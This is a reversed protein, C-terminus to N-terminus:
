LFRGTLPDKERPVRRKGMPRTTAEEPPWGALMRQRFAPASIGNARAKHWWLQGDPARQVFRRNAAQTEAPVWTCNGPEYNGNVDIREITLDDRYGNTLAWHQFNAFRSWEACISIGRAGYNEYSDSSPNLCRAKMNKWAYHLRSGTAGHSRKLDGLRDVNQCGCNTSKGNRLDTGTVLGETGCDCRCRWLAAGGATNGAQSLVVWCGCRRGRMDILRPNKM